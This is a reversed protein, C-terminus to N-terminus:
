RLFKFKQNPGGHCHYQIIPTGDANGGGRVDLCLRSHKAGISYRGHGASVLQFKQNEAGSCPAQIAQGGEDTSAGRIDLCQGSHRVRISYYGDQNYELM